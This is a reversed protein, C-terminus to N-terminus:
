ILVRGGRESRRRVTGGGSGSEASGGAGNNHGVSVESDSEHVAEAVDFLSYIQDAKKDMEEVMGNLKLTLAKRKRKGLSPDLSLFEAEVKKYDSCNFDNNANM